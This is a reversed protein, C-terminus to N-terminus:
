KGLYRGYDDLDNIFRGSFQADDVDQEATEPQHAYDEETRQEDTYDEAAPENVQLVAKGLVGQVALRGLRVAQVEAIRLNCLFVLRLNVCIRASKGIEQNERFARPAGQGM